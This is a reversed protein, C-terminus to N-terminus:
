SHSKASALIKPHYNDLKDLFHDLEIETHDWIMFIDDIYRKWVMPKTSQQALFKDELVAMFLIAYNLACRTGM